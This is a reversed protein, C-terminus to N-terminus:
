GFGTFFTVYVAQWFPDDGPFFTRGDKNFEDSFVLDYHVKDPSVWTMADSPTDKDVLSPFNPIAPVQGTANIGGVNFAGNTGQHSETYYTIIPYGAFLAILCLLLLFLCGINAM